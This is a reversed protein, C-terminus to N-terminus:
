RRSIPKWSGEITGIIGLIAVFVIATFAAYTM